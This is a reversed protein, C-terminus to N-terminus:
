ADEANAAVGVSVCGYGPVGLAVGAQSVELM